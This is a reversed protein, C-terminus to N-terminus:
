IATPEFKRKSPPLVMTRQYGLADLREKDAKTAPVFVKRAFLVPGTLTPNRKPVRSKEKLRVRLFFYRNGMFGM